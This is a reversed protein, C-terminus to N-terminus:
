QVNADVSFFNAGTLITVNAADNTLNSTLTGYIKVNTGALAGKISVPSGAAANGILVCDRLVNSSNTSYFYLAAGNNDTDTMVLRCRNLTATCYNGNVFVPNSSTGTITADDITLANTACCQKVVFDDSTMTAAQIKLSSADELDIVYYQASGNNYFEGFGSVDCTVAGNAGDSTDDFISGSGAGTYTVKAGRLFNWNVGNKLLNKEDYTGPGVTILDGSVANTKAAGLTLFPKGGRAGTSDNGNVSDVLLMNGALGGGGGSATATILGGAITFTVSASNTLAAGNANTGNVLIVAPLLGIPIAPLLNTGLKSQAYANLAAILQTAINTQSVSDYASFPVEVVTQATGVTQTSYTVRGWNTPSLTITLAVDNTARFTVNTGGSTTMSPVNAFPYSGVQAVLSLLILSATDNTGVRIQTAPNAVSNTFTRVDGNITLSQGSTANTLVSYNTISLTASTVTSAEAGLSLCFLALLIGFFNKM